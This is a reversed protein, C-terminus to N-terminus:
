QSKSVHSSVHFLRVLSSPMGNKKSVNVYKCMCVFSLIVLALLCVATLLLWPLYNRPDDASLPFLVPKMFQDVFCFCIRKHFLIGQLTQTQCLNLGSNSIGNYLLVNKAIVANIPIKSKLQIKERRFAGFFTRHIKLLYFPKKICYMVM